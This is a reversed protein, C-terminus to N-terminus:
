SLHKAILWDVDYLETIKVKFCHLLYTWYIYDKLACEIRKIVWPFSFVYGWWLLTTWHHFLLLLQLTILAIFLSVPVFLFAIVLLLLLVVILSLIVLLEVLVLLLKRLISSSYILKFIDSKWVLISVM